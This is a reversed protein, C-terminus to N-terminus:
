TKRRWSQILLLGVGITIATDALNFTPWFSFDIFDIVSGDTFGPGRFVRDALNGAGGGLIMGFAIPFEGSRIAWIAVVGVLIASAIALLGGVKPLISFAGGPNRVLELGLFSGLIEIRADELTVLALSKSIQDVALTAAVSM